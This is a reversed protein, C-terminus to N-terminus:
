NQVISRLLEVRLLFGSPLTVVRAERQWRSMIRIITEVRAGVLAALEARSLRLPVLLRGARVPHAGFREGLTLLLTALRQPVAGASFIEITQRLIRTHRLLLERMAQGLVLDTAAAALVPAALSQRIVLRTSSAVADAPYRVQELVAASGLDDGPGFLGYIAETGAASTHVIKALGSEIWTFQQAADGARWLLQGRLLTRSVAEAMWPPPPAALNARQADPM